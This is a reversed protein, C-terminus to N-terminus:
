LASQKNTQMWQVEKSLNHNTNLDFSWKYIKNTLKYIQLM